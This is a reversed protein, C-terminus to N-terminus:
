GGPQPQTLPLELAFTTGNNSTDELLLKSDLQQMLEQSISLGLGTGEGAMKTTFFPDFIKAQASQPIGEGNDIIRLIVTNEHSPQATISIVGNSRKKLADRANSLLNVLVQKLLDGNSYVDITSPVQNDLHINYKKLDPLMLEAVADTLLQLSLVEMKPNKNSRSFILMNHVLHQIRELEVMAKQLTNSVKPNDAKALCYEIYNHIGMLPNNLEHAVGGVMVGMASLKEMQIMHKQNDKLQNLLRTAELEATKRQEMESLLDSKLAMETLLTLRMHNMTKALQDLEELDAGPIPQSFNKQSIKKTADILDQVPKVIIHKSRSLMVVPIIITMLGLFVITGYFYPRLVLYHHLANKRIQRSYSLLNYIQSVLGPQLESRVKPSLDERQIMNILTEIEALQAFLQPYQYSADLAEAEILANKFRTIAIEWQQTTRTNPHIIQENALMILDLTLEELEIAGQHIETMKNSQFILAATAFVVLILLTTQIFFWGTLIQKLNLKNM